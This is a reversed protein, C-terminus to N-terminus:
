TPNNYAQLAYQKVLAGLESNRWDRAFMSVPIFDQYRALLIPVSTKRGSPSAAEVTPTLRYSAGIWGAVEINPQRLILAEYTVSRMKRKGCGELNDWTSRVRYGMGYFVLGERSVELRVQGVMWLTLLLTFALGVALVLLFVSDRGPTLLAVVVFAALCVLLAPLIMAIPAAVRFTKISNSSVAQAM